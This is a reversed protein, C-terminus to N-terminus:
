TKLIGEVVITGLKRFFRFLLPENPVDLQTVASSRHLFEVFGNLSQHFLALVFLKTLKQLFYRVGTILPRSSSESTIPAVLATQGGNKYFSLRSM